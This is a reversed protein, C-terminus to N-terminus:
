KKVLKIDKFQFSRVRLGDGLVHDITVVRRSTPLWYKDFKAYSNEFINVKQLVRTQPDFYSVVYRTPIYKGPDFETNELVSIFFRQEGATRTMELAQNDRVRSDLKQPDNYSILTGFDTEESKAFALPFQGESEDFDGTERHMVFSRAQRQLWKLDEGELGKVEVKCDSMGRYVITGTATKAGEQYTIQADIGPFDDPLTQRAEYAKKLLEYAKPDANPNPKAGDARAFGTFTTAFLSAALLATFQKRQM